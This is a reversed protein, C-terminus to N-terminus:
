GPRYSPPSCPLDREGRVECPSLVERPVDEGSTWWALGRATARWQDRLSLDGECSALLTLAQAGVGPVTSVSEVALRRREIPSGVECTHRLSAALLAMPGNRSARAAQEARGALRTADEFASTRWAVAAETLAAFALLSPLQLSELSDVLVDDARRTRGARFAAARALSALWAEHSLLDLRRLERAARRALRVAAEPDPVELLSAAQWMMATLRERPGSALTIARRQAGVAEAFQHQRYLLMGRAEAAYFRAEERHEAFLELAEVERRHEVETGHRSLSIRVVQAGLTELGELVARARVVEGRAFLLAGQVTRELDGVQPDSTRRVAVLLAELAKPTGLALAPSEWASLLRRVLEPRGRVAHLAMALAAVAGELDVQGAQALAAETVAEPSQDLAARVIPSVREAARMARFRQPDVRREPGLVGLREWRALEEGIREPDTGCRELLLDAARSRTRSVREPGQLWRKLGARTIPTPPLVRPRPGLARAAERADAFRDEPRRAVLRDVVRALEGDPVGRAALPVPDQALRGVILDEGEHPLTGALAEYLMVGLAYLDSRPDAGGDLLQEPAMYLLTGSGGAPSADDSWEVGHGRALGLDLLVPRGDACVRVNSPKVDRHVIGLSHIRDLVDLLPLALARLDEASRRPGPFPVGEIWEMILTPSGGWEGQDLLAVLGPFRAAMLATTEHRFTGRLIRKVAVPERTIEDVARWVVGQGGRGSLEELRYRGLVVAGPAWSGEVTGVM